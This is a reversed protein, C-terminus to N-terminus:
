LVQYYYTTGSNNIAASGLTLVGDAFKVQSMPYTEVGWASDSWWYMTIHTAGFPTVIYMKSRTEPVGDLTFNEEHWIFLVNGVGGIDITKAAGTGTYTGTPKNGTHLITDTTKAGEASFTTLALGNSNAVTAPAIWLTRSSKNEGAGQTLNQVAVYNDSANRLQLYNKDNVNAVALTGTMTNSGDLAVAGVEAATPKNLESYIESWASITGDSLLRRHFLCVAGHVIAFQQGYSTSGAVSFIMANAYSSKNWKYPTGLTSANTIYANYHVGSKIIADMDYESSRADIFPMAGVDAATPKNHEGYIRYAKQVNAIVTNLLLADSLASNMHSANRLIIQRRNSDDGTADINQLLMQDNAIAMMASSGATDDDLRVLPTAKKVVLNGTMTDGAKDVAGVDAATPKNGESYVKQWTGLTGKNLSRTLVYPLGNPYAIQFGYNAVGSYSFILARQFSSSVVGHAYPTGKTNGSTQYVKCHPGSNIIADMDDNTSTANVVPLAGLDTASPMNTPSYKKALEGELYANTDANQVYARSAEVDLIVKVLVNAAFLDIDGVNNGHADAFQFTKSKNKGGEQYSVVLGTIQSCDAPSKFTLPQGNLITYDVTVKINAM